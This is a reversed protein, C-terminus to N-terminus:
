RAGTVKPRAKPDPDPRPHSTGEPSEV